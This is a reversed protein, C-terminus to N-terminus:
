KVTIRVVLNKESLIEEIPAESIPQLMLGKGFYGKRIVYVKPDTVIDMMNHACVKIIKLEM